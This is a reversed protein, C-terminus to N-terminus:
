NWILLVLFFKLVEKSPILYFSGNMSTLHPFINQLVLSITAKSFSFWEWYKEFISLHCLFWMNKTYYYIRMVYSQKRRRRRWHSQIWGRHDLSISWQGAVWRSFLQSRRTHKLEAGKQNAKCGQQTCHECSLSKGCSVCTNFVAFSSYMLIQKWVSNYIKQEFLFRWHITGIFIGTDSEASINRRPPSVAECVFNERQVRRKDLWRIGSLAGHSCLVESLHATPPLGAWLKLM